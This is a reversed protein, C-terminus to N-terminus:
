VAALPVESGAVPAAARLVSGGTEPTVLNDATTVVLTALDPGAFCLSSVFRAPVDV